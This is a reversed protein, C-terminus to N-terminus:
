RASVTVNLVYSPGSNTVIDLQYVGTSTFKIDTPDGTSSAIKQFGRWVTGGDSGTTWYIAIHDNVYLDVANTSIHYASVYVGIWQPTPSPTPTPKPTPTTTPTPSPSPTPAYSSLVLSATAVKEPMLLSSATITVIGNAGLSVVKAVGDAGITVSSESSSYSVLKNEQGDSMLNEGTFTLSNIQNTYLLGAPPTLRVASVEVPVVQISSSTFNGLKAQISTTASSNSALFVGNADLTGAAPNSNTWTPQPPTGYLSTANVPEWTMASSIPLHHGVLVRYGDQRTDWAAKSASLTLTKVVWFVASSSSSIGDAKIRIQGTSATSPVQVRLTTETRSLVSAAVGNFTVEVPITSSGFNSGEIEIYDNRRGVNSSLGTIVPTFLPELTINAPTSKSRVVNLGAASGQAIPEHQEINPDQERYAKVDISLNNAAKLTLNLTATSAGPNRKVTARDLIEDGKAVTVILANTSIPIAQAQFNADDRKPWRINLEITGEGTLAEPEVVQPPVQDPPVLSQPHRALPVSIPQSTPLVQICGALLVTALSISVNRKMM